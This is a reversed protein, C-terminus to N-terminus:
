KQPRSCWFFKRNIQRAQEHLKERRPRLRPSRPRSQQQLRIEHHQFRRYRQLRRLHLSAPTPFRLTLRLLFHPPKPQSQPRRLRRRDHQRVLYGLQRAPSTSHINSAARKQSRHLHFKALKQGSVSPSRVSLAKKCTQHSVHNAMFALARQWKKIDFHTDGFWANGDGRECCWGASSMHNDLHLYIGQKVCEDAISDFVKM